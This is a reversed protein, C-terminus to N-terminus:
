AVKMDFAEFIKVGISAGKIKDLAEESPEKRLEFHAENEDTEGMYQLSNWTNKDDERGETDLARFDIINNKVDTDGQNFNNIKESM